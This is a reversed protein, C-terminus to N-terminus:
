HPIELIDPAAAAGNGRAVAPVSPPTSPQAIPSRSASTQRPSPAPRAVRPPQLRPLAETAATVQASSVPVVPEAPPSPQSHDLSKLDALQRFDQFLLVRVYDISATDSALAVRWSGDLGKVARGVPLGRPLVGGDGSTLVLDNLRIPDRGRMYDLRPRGGGDGTLIARANTRDVLIPTRSAVDTLLLVRSVGKTVGVVRGILGNESMVPNGVVIGRESGVDILRTNAFPGRSETVTRGAVMPIPPDTRLGLLARYRDSADQLQVARQQWSQAVQLEAKLRRNESVALFYGAFGQFASDSWRVPTAIAGSVPAAVADGIRRTVGYAESQFTERRDSVILAVAVIIAVLLAAAASIMLPLRVEGLPNDRLTM